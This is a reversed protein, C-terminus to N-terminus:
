TTSGSSRHWRRARSASSSDRVTLLMALTSMWCPTSRNSRSRGWSTPDRSTGASPAPGTGGGGMGMDSDPGVLAPRGAAAAMGGAAVAGGAARGGVEAGDTGGGGAALGAPSPASDPGTGPDAAAASRKRASSSRWSAWPGRRRRPTGRRRLNRGGPPHAVGCPQATASPLDSCTRFVCGTRGQFPRTLGPVVACCGKALVAAM